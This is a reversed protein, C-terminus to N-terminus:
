GRRKRAVVAAGLLLAAAGMAAAYVMLQSADGTPPVTDPQQTAQPKGTAQPQQTTEPTQTVQPEQTPQTTPEPKQTPETSPEPMQTPETTPQPKQTPDEAGCVTYVGDEFKHGTAPITTGQEVVEGCVTCVRDGTYGDETCTPEKDNQLETTHAEFVATITVAKDPMPFTGDAAIEVDASQWEKFHYGAAAQQTLTVTTGAAATTPTAAATGGEGATVSVTYTQPEPPTTDGKVVPQVATLQSPNTISDSAPLTATLDMTGDTLADFGQTNWSALVQVPVQAGAQTNWVVSILQPLTLDATTADNDFTQTSFQDTVQAYSVPAAYRDGTVTLETISVSGGAANPNM